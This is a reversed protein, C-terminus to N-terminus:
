PQDEGAIPLSALRDVVLSAAEAAGPAPPMHSNPVLVVRMGAARGALVGNKSDEIVLCRGPDVGLRRAAELYVDPAPKGAAVDDSSVVTEFLEDLGAARLAAGIVARHASSAIAVAFRAAIRTAAAPAGPVIPVPECDFRSVLADVIDREIAAPEDPVNARRRMIESWERSNPGMCARSDEVTWAHGRPAAWAVRVEHWWVDTNVLVGDMDFIVAEVGALVADVTVGSGEGTTADNM